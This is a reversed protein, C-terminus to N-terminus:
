KKVPKEDANSTQMTITFVFVLPILVAIHDAM